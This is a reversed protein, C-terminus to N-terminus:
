DEEINQIISYKSIWWVLDETDEFIPKIKGKKDTTEGTKIQRFKHEMDHIYIIQNEQLPQQNWIRKSIKCKITTGNNLCYTNMTPSYKTNIDFVLVYRKDLKNDKYDTYGLIEKHNIITEQLNISKNPISELIEQLCKNSDFKTYTAETPISNLKITDVINTDKIKESITLKKPAKKGYLINFCYVFDLLKQSEGFEKFYDLKILLLIMSKNISSNNTMEELIEYFNNFHNTQSMSYLEDAVNKGMNKISTLSPNICKKEKDFTFRRNDLGYKLKGEAIDFAIKMEEKLLTVKDKNKKEDFRNLCVEYTEYPFYAKLYAIEAGDNGVCYAHASNFAYSVADQMVKWTDDFKENNGVNIIWQKECRLRLDELEAPKFKKKSIKKIVDYTEKMEIGLWGLYAMLSEQYLMYHFSDKLIVDLEKVGTSYPKRNLFNNLLSSFSPRIGAVFASLEATNKMKYKMCKLKTGEKECQNVCLTYGNAYIDWAKKGDECTLIKELQNNTISPKGIRKWIDETLGVVDVILLDTKLFKYTEAMSGDLCATLVSKKTVESQCRLIGIEERIDGNFLLYGCPHSSKQIIIGQYPKSLGVYKIYEKSIYKKIDIEEKEEETECYKLTKEYEKLQKTVDNQICAEIGEAGMYLKIASSKKLAGYAIMPYVSHEGLLEKFGEIFPEQFDVNNDIDPISRSKIIRDATMFREPYLKIPAKFRDVKSFGLLTNIFFGVSSGRGRKTVRGGKDKGKQLGYYHLLFYDAMGTKIVEGVEERIGKLYMAYESKPINEVEKFKSWEINIIRKLEKDKETQSMKPYMTPLKIKTDLVIDEFNEICNTNNLAETIQDDTLIGQTQFRQFAIDYSPYDLFWGEEDEYVIGKYALIKDRRIKDSSNIYHSDMGAIIKIQYEESLELIHKNIEMQKSTNHNQVELLFNDKFYKHLRIIIDDIDEYKNWFAICASTIFVDESPLSFLLEFDLRPRGNFYGDENAKSLALNIAKRGKENKALIIIHCNSKDREHRDKVWYAEAGFIFKMDNKKCLDHLLYYNGQFGHEVSTVVRQGLLKARTIYEEYNCPSDAIIINTFMKHSHYNVYNNM